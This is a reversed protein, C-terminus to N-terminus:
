NVVQKLVLSTSAAYNESGPYVATINHTGPKLRSLTLSAMGQQLQGVGLSTGGEKFIVHETNRPVFGQASTVSAVFTVSSGYPLFNGSSTLAVNM